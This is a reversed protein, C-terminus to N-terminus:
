RRKGGRGLGSGTRVPTGDIGVQECAVCRRSGSARNRRWPMATAGERFEENFPAQATFKSVIEATADSSGDDCVVLEAPALTQAAISDLQEQLYEAGNFTCMAVSVRM